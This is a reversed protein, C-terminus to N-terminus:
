ELEQAALARQIERRVLKRVNRTIREGLNGQLEERVIEAVLDRLADEDMEAENPGLPDNEGLFANDDLRARPASEPDPQYTEMDAEHDFPELGENEDAVGARATHGTEDIEDPAHDQWALVTLPQATNEDGSEGDPEWQDDQEAIATEFDAARTSLAEDADSEPGLTDGAEATEVEVPADQLEDQDPAPGSQSHDDEGRGADPLADADEDEDEDQAGQTADIVFAEAGGDEPAGDEPAGDEPAGDEPRTDESAHVVSQTHAFEPEEGAGDVRLSPTLVLKEAKEAKEVKASAVDNAGREDVSVLRRISSLVDEIEANPVPDSM